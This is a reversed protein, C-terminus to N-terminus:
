TINRKPFMNQVKLLEVNYSELKLDRSSLSDSWLATLCAISLSM